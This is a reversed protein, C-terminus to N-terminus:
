SVSQPALHLRNRHSAASGQSAARRRKDAYMNQDAMRCLADLTDAQDPYIASGISLSPQMRQLGDGVPLSFPAKEVAHRFAEMVRESRDLLTQDTHGPKGGAGPLFDMILLQFEDGGMRALTDAQRTVAGLRVGIEQLLADGADHGWRDNVEKFNDLDINFLVVRSGKREAQAIAQELRDRFLRRNPLGTLTDHLMQYEKAASDEELTVILLGFTVVFKQLDWIKGAMLVWEPYHTAIWPHTLFCLSWMSFGSIVVTRGWRERPLTFCFAIATAAYMDFLLLYTVERPHGAFAAVIVPTWIVAHCFLHIPPRRFALAATFGAVLGAVALGAFLGKGGTGAGYATILALIPTICLLLYANSNPLYRLKGTASQFFAVGALFYADLAVVHAALHAAQPLPVMYLIRAVGEVVILTLGTIWLNLFDGSQRSRLHSLVVAMWLIAILDPLLLITM